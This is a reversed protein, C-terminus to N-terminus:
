EDIRALEEADEAAQRLADQGNPHDHYYRRLASCILQTTPAASVDMSAWIFGKGVYRKGYVESILLQGHKWRCEFRWDSGLPILEGDEMEMTADAIECLIADFEIPEPREDESFRALLNM